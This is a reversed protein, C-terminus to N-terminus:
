YNEVEILFWKHNICIFNFIQSLKNNRYIYLRRNNGSNSINQMICVKPCISQFNVYNWERPMLLKNGVEKYGRMQRIPIPFITRKIQFDHNRSFENLFNVFDADTVAKATHGEKLLYSKGSHGFTFQKCEKNALTVAYIHEDGKQPAADISDACLVAVPQCVIYSGKRDAKNGDIKLSSPASKGQTTPNQLFRVLFRAFSEAEVQACGLTGLLSFLLIYKSFKKM